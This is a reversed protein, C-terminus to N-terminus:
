SSQMSASWFADCATSQCASRSEEKSSTSHWATRGGTQMKVTRSTDHEETLAGMSKPMNTYAEAIIAGNTRLGRNSSTLKGSTVRQPRLEGEGSERVGSRAAAM